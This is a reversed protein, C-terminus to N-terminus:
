TDTYKKEELTLPSYNKQLHIKQFNQEHGSKLPFNPKGTVLVHHVVDVRLELGVELFFQLDLAREVVVVVRADVGAQVEDGWRPM